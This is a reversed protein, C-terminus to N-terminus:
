KKESETARSSLPRYDPHAQAEAPTAMRVYPAGNPKTEDEWPRSESASRQSKQSKSRQRGKPNNTGNEKKSSKWHGNCKVCNVSM